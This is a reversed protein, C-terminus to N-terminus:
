PYTKVLIKETLRFISKGLQSLQRAPKLTVSFLPQRALLLLPPPRMVSLSIIIRKM